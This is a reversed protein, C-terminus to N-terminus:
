PCNLMSGKSHISSMVLDSPEKIANIINTAHEDGPPLVVGV